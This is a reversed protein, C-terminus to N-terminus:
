GALARHLRVNLMRNGMGQIPFWVVHVRAYMSGDTWLFKGAGSPLLQEAQTAEGLAEADEDEGAGDSDNGGDTSRCSPLM